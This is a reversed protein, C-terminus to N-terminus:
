RRRRRLALLSGGILLLLGSTPEPVPAVGLGGGALASASAAPGDTLGNGAVYGASVLDNYSWTPMKQTTSEGLNNYTVLEVYFSYASDAYSGLDTQTVGLKTGVGTSSDYDDALNNASLPEGVGEVYLNATTFTVGDAPAVQWYLVEAKLSVAGVVVALAFVLEKLNKM